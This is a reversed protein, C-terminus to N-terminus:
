FLRKAAVGNRDDEGDTKNKHGVKAKLLAAGDRRLAGEDPRQELVAQFQIRDLHSMDLVEDFTLARRNPPFQREVM